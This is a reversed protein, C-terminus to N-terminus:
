GNKKSRLDKLLKELTRPHCRTGFQEELQRVLARARRTPDEHLQREVFQVVDTTLKSPGHPGPKRSLLGATGAADFRAQVNYFSQRSIGYRQCLAVVRHHDLRHARLMEYRVQLLDTADFFAAHDHFLPDNVREPFPNLVGAARLYARKQYRRDEM